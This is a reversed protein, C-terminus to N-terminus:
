IQMFLQMGSGFGMEKAKLDLHLTSIQELPPYILRDAKRADLTKIYKKCNGCIDVRFEIEEDSYFYQLTTHDRNECFPCFVRKAAWEHWCFGCILRRAGEEELISLIPPSGCIPCYGKLWPEDKSLYSALQDACSSLSPKLSNYTIFGLAQKDIEFELIINEFIAEDGVLLGSFLRKLTIKKDVEKLLVKATAALKPNANKSLHCLTLFLNGSENEDYIFEKIEVLPFKERAKVSLMEEPIQLPDIRVRGRSDAQADFVRGYFELMGQYAPRSKKVAEVAKKVQDATLAMNSIM